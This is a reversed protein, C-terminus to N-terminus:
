LDARIILVEPPDLDLQKVVEHRPRSLVEPLQAGPLRPEPVLAGLDVPDDGVEHDLAPIKLPSVPLAGINKGEENLLRTSEIM